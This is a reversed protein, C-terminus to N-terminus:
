KERFYISLPVGTFVFHERLRGELYRRYTESILKPQNTFFAFAPPATKVQTVYSIRIEKGTRSSPPTREIEPLLASNLKSTTIRRRYEADVRRAIDIAKYVRQKTLASIFVIPVYDYRRLLARLSQEYAKATQDNKEVVDWKNAAIIAGRHREAISEMIRLDQRDIGAAADVVLVAVSCRDISKLARITSYFEISEKIRSKRRLGATDILLIDEKQYRLVSDIADRTTGPIDTVIHRPSGLLANVLSSKGVNPKGVIALSLREDTEETDGNRPLHATVEDLFDGIKRGGLASISIPEGLGLKFYQGVEQERRSSDVKNVVLHVKKRSKRLIDAVEEDIPTIGSLADVMFIVASAESIAIEAQERIAQEILDSSNPVYGGTDIVTLMRGAWETTGYHRDRTVGPEDHVIAEREGVLRNFLTSKGVNPRGVIALIQPMRKEREMIRIEACLILSTGTRGASEHPRSENRAGVSGRPLTMNRREAACM